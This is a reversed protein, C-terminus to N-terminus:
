RVPALGLEMRIRDRTLPVLQALAANAGALNQSEVARIFTEMVEIEDLLGYLGFQSRARAVKEVFKPSGFPNSNGEIEFWVGLFSELATLRRDRRELAIDKARNLRATIFWGCAVILGALMPSVLTIWQETTM